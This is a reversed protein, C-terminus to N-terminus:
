GSQLASKTDTVIADVAGVMSELQEPDNGLRSLAAAARSAFENSDVPLREVDVIVGKENTVWSGASAHWAHACLMLATSCCLDVYGVDLKPIGKRAADVLFGAQWLNDIFAAHVATPYPDLTSRLPELM